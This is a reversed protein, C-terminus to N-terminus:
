KLDSIDGGKRERGLGMWLLKFLIKTIEM